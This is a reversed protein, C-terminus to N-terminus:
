AGVGSTTLTVKVVTGVPPPQQSGVSDTRDATFAWWGGMDVPQSTVVYRAFGTTPPTVGDDSITINDGILIVGLNRTTGAHDVGSIALGRQSTGGTTDICIGGPGPDAQFDTGAYAYMASSRTNPAGWAVDYDDASLKVLAEGPQGGAPIGVVAGPDVVPAVYGDVSPRPCGLMLLISRRQEYYPTGITQGTDSFGAFGEGTGRAQFWLAALRTVGEACAGDPPLVSPAYGSSARWGDAVAQAADISDQISLDDATDDPSLSLYRKVRALDTWAM